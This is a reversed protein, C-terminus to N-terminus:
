RHEKRCFAVHAAAPAVWVTVRLARVIVTVGPLLELEIFKSIGFLETLYFM